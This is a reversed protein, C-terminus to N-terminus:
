SVSQEFFLNYSVNAGLEFCTTPLFNFNTEPDLCTTSVFNVSAEPDFRTTFVFNIMQAMICLTKPRDKKLMTHLPIPPCITKWCQKFPSPPCRPWTWCQIPSLPVWLMDYMICLMHRPSGPHKKISEGLRLLDASWTHEITRLLRIDMASNGQFHHEHMAVGIAEVM